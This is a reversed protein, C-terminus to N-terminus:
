SRATWAREVLTAARRLPPLLRKRATQPTTNSSVTSFCIAGVTSGDSSRLPVAISLLGLEVEGDVLAHGAERVRAIERRLADEGTITRETLRPRPYRQFHQDLEAPTLAALMVRGMSTAFAPLRDGIGIAISMIRRAAPYRATHVIDAGELVSGSCSEDVESVLAKLVPAAMEWISDGGLFGRSLRLIRPRLAFRKGDFAAYGLEVLTLLLRRAAARPLGARRAVDTLQLGAAAGDFAEIVALGRALSQVREVRGPTPQSSVIFPM